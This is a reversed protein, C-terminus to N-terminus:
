KKEQTPHIYKYAYMITLTIVATYLIATILGKIIDKTFTYIIYIIVLNIVLHNSSFYTTINTKKIDDLHKLLVDKISNLTFNDPSIM